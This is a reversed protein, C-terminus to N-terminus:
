IIRTIGGAPIVKRVFDYWWMGVGRALAQGVSRRFVAISDPVDKPSFPPMRGFVDGLHTPHDQEDICLKGHMKISEVVHRFQGSGGLVRQYGEYAFPASLYDVYPSDLVRDIELHGGTTMQYMYFFYGYFVGTILPRPWFEKASKCFHIVNDAVTQQHCQYYDIVRREKEPDRFIGDSTHLREQMDPVTATELDAKPDNWAARIAENNNYKERLWQRYFKTMAVGTDPEHFFGWYHWEAYVGGALHIGVVCDGEPSSSLINCFERLKDTADSRWKNSAFSSRRGLDMDGGDNVPGEAYGVIEDPNKQCWWGPADIHLRIFIAASPCVARVGQIQKKVFDMDLSGDERWIDRFWTDIQFLTFGIEGFNHLNRSPTEEWTSRGGETIAYIMPYTPKDNIFITPRGKFAAVKGQLVVADAQTIAFVAVLVLLIITERM